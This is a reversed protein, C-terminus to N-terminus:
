PIKQYTRERHVLWVGAISVLTAMGMARWLFFNNGVYLKGIMFPHLAGCTVSCRFRFVGSLDATFSLRQPQGPDAKVELGYQDIYLGHVVDTSVLEITVRDGPNVRIQAPKYEFDGAEIRIIQERPPHPRYPIPLFAIAALALGLIMWAVLNKKNFIKLVSEKRM